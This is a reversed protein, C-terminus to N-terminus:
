RSVYAHRLHEALEDPEVELGCNMADWDTGALLRKRAMALLWADIFEALPIRTAEYQAWDDIAAREANSRSSWFPVVTRSAYDLSDCVAWGEETRLGWVEREEAAREVFQTYGSDAPIYEQLAM